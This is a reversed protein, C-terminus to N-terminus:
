AEAACLFQIVDGLYEAKNKKFPLMYDEFFTAYKDLLYNVIEKLKEEGCESNILNDYKIRLDRDRNL